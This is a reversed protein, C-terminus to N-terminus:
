TVDSVVICAGAKGRALEALPPGGLPRALAQAVAKAPDALPPLEESQLLAADPPLDLSIEKRGCPIKVSSM